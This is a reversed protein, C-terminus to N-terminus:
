RWEHNMYWEVKIIPQDILGLIEQFLYELTKIVELIISIKVCFMDEDQFVIM